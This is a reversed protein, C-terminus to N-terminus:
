QVAVSLNDFVFSTQLSSDETETLYVQITKGKYASLDFTKQTYGTGKNLNSYTALTSLTKGNSNRIRIYCKDYASSTTREATDIHLYFSLKASTATGPITVAQYLYETGKKGNGGIWANKTGQYAPEASFTGIAGATCTWGTTGSEFGGNTIKETTQTVNSVSFGVSTSTGVNGAADYAKAVLTHSGNALTTSDLALSYPSTTDTGKQVSDLYWEVKTVGVNDTATAGLTITGSTGSETASVTPATTDTASVVTLTANSSTVSGKSNSVVVHFSTGNEASTTSATTYSAATAGTIPSSGRYWQYALPTSGTAVVTFTATQGLTVTTSNPQTTIAPATATSSGSVPWTWASYVSSAVATPKASDNAVSLILDRALDVTRTMKVYDIKDVTDTTEHLDSHIGSNFFISPINRKAFSYHDSQQWYQDIGKSLDLDKTLVLQRAKTVLTTVKNSVAAPTVYLTRTANRGIMDLNVNAVVKTLDIPPKSAFAESGLLGEEEGSCALFLISRKPSSGQLLTALEILGSTGSANDDAGPYYGGTALGLHDFHASVLVYESALTPDTGPIVGVLDSATTALMSTQLLPEVRGLSRPAVADCEFATEGDLPQFFGLLRAGEENVHIRPLSGEPQSAPLPFLNRFSPQLMFQDGMLKRMPSEPLRVLVLGAAGAQAAARAKAEVGAADLFAEMYRGGCRPAGELAVVWKGRVEHGAYDDHDPTRLGWGLFVAEGAQPTRGHAQYHVGPLLTTGKLTFGDTLYSSLTYTYHYPTEGGMGTGSVTSLGLAQMKGAIYTTAMVCGPQGTERGQLESGALYELNQRMRAADQAGATGVAVLCCILARPSFSM